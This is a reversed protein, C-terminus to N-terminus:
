YQLLALLYVLPFLLSYPDWVWLLLPPVTFVTYRTSVAAISPCYLTHIEYECYLTHIKYGCCCHLSLLYYPDWLWLLLPPVPFLISRTGVAAISSCYITHIEYGCCCHLFLLYYPDRVWLLLPPVTFLISRTSVAVISPCHLTHIKYGCCCHLSLLSYPDRVWLLLPPVTFLISRTSVAVIPSCNNVVAYHYATDGSKDKKSLSVGLRLLEEITPAQKGMLAVMLPTRQHAGGPHDTYRPSWHVHTRTSLTGPLDTSM